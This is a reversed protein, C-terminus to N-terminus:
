AKLFSFFYQFQVMWVLTIPNQFNSQESGEHIYVCNQVTYLASILCYM